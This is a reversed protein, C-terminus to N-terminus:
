LTKTCDAEATEKFGNSNTETWWGHPTKWLTTTTGSEEGLAIGDKNWEQQSLSREKWLGSTKLERLTLANDNQVVQVQQDSGTSVNCDLLVQSNAFAMSAFLLTSLM